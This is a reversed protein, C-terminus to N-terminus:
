VLVGRDVLLREAEEFSVEKMEGGFYEAEYYKYIEVALPEDEEEGTLGLDEGLMVWNIRSDELDVICESIFCTKEEKNLPIVEVIDYGTSGKRAFLGGVDFITNEM